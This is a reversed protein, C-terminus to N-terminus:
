NRHKLLRSLDSAASMSGMFAGYTKSTKMFYIQVSIILIIIIFVCTMISPILFPSINSIVYSNPDNNKYYIKTPGVNLKKNDNNNNNIFKYHNNNVDYESIVKCNPDTLNCDTDLINNNTDILKYSIKSNNAVQYNDKLMVLSFICTCLCILCVIFLSLYYKMLGYTQLFSSVEAM